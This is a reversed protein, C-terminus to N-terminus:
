TPKDEGLFREKVFRKAEYKSAFRGYLRPTANEVSVMWGGVRCWGSITVANTCGQAPSPDPSTLFEHFAEYCPVKELMTTPVFRQGESTTVSWWQIFSLEVAGEPVETVRAWDRAKEAAALLWKGFAEAQEPSLIDTAIGARSDLQICITGRKANNRTPVWAKLKSEKEPRDPRTALRFTVEKRTLM